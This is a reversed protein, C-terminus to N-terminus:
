SRGRPLSYLPPVLKERMPCPFRKVVRGELKVVLDRRHTSLTAVVYQGALRRGVRYTGGPLEITGTGGVRRVFSIRGWALPLQLSGAADRYRDLSFGPPLPRLSPRAAALVAGPFRSGQTAVRLKRHPRAYYYRLFRASTRRVAALDPCRHRWLVRGQWLGNFSEIDPNRGPEGPPIFWWHVGLLLGLRVVQSFTFGHPNGGVVGFENDLQSVRPVGLEGWAHRFHACWAETGKDQRYSAAAARSVVDLTHFAFFRTVGRPGRVHRPGVLDSQQVEGVRTARPAPCPRGPGRRRRPDRRTCGHRTLIREITRRSPFWRAGRRELEWRIADAGRGAFATGRSRHAVLEARVRLVLAVLRPATRRWIRRPARSRDQLGPQGERRYRRWWTALWSRSRGVAQAAAAFRAGRRLLDIAKCRRAYESLEGM